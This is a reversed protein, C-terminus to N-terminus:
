FDNANCLESFDIVGKRGFEVADKKLEALSKATDGTILQLLMPLNLGTVIEVPLQDKYKGYLRSSIMFPSGGLLDTLILIGDEGSNLIEKEIKNKYQDLDDDYAITLYKVNDQPGAIMQATEWVGKAYNGHGLLLINVM